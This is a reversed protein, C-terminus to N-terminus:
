ATRFLEALKAGPDPSRMFAEGVLFCNVERRRLRAVDEPHQIGSETIVVRDAPVDNLLGLTTDISTVFRKLDRNNIGILPLRLRLAQELEVRDHVELLVDMGLGTAVGALEQLLGDSLGAVILLICDAGLARSEYIQYVECMFDKRLVPLTCAARAAILHQDAGQFYKEDTLVSLCAAGGRAYSEAIETVNYPERMVGKSPSAKKCEAIVGAEGGALKRRLAVEFGRSPTQAYALDKVKPLPALAQRISIEHRKHAFIEALIDRGPVLATTETM